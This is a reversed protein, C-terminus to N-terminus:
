LCNGGFSPVSTDTPSKVTSGLPTPAKSILGVPEMANATSFTAPVFPKNRISVSVPLAVRRPPKGAPIVKFPIAIAVLGTAYAVSAAFLRSIKFGIDAVAGTIDLTSANGAPSFTTPISKLGTFPCNYASVEALLNYVTFREEPATAATPAAPLKVNAPADKPKSKLGVTSLIRTTLLVPCFMLNFGLSPVSAAVSAVNFGPVGSTLAAAYVLLKAPVVVVANNTISAVVSIKYVCIGGLAPVKTGTPGNPTFM